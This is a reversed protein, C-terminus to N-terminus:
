WQIKCSVFNLRLSPLIEVHRRGEFWGKKEQGGKEQTRKGKVRNESRDRVIAGNNVLNDLDPMLGSEDSFGM